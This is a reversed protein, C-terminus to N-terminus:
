ANWEESTPSSGESTKESAAIALSILTRLVSSIGLNGANTTNLCHIVIRSSCCVPRLNSAIHLWNLKETPPLDDIVLLNLQIQTKNHNLLGLAASPALLSAECLSM